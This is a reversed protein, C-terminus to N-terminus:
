SGRGVRGSPRGGRRQQAGVLGARPGPWTPDSIPWTARVVRRLLLRRPPRRAQGALREAAKATKRAPGGDILAVTECGYRLDKLRIRLKHLNTDRPSRAPPGPREACTTGRGTCCRPYCRQPRSPRGQVQVGPRGVAGADARDAPVPPGRGARHRHRGPGRSTREDVVACSARGSGRRDIVEPGTTTVVERLIHLDRSTASSTATGPSGRGATGHGVGPRSRAPLHPPQVPHPPPGGPEPPHARSTPAASPAPCRCPRRGPGSHVATRGPGYRISRDSRRAARDIQEDGMDNLLFARRRHALVRHLVMGPQPSPSVARRPNVPWPICTGPCCPMPATPRGASAREDHRGGPCLRPADPTWTGCRVGDWAPPGPGLWAAVTPRMCATVMTSPAGRTAPARRDRGPGSSSRTATAAAPM